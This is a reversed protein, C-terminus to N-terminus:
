DIRFGTTSHSKFSFQLLTEHLWCDSLHKLFNSHKLCGSTSGIKDRGSASAHKADSRRSACCVCLAQSYRTPLHRCSSVSSRGRLLKTWVSVFRNPIRNSRSRDNVLKPCSALIKGRHSRDIKRTTRKKTSRFQVSSSWSPMM